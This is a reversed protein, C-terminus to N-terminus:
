LVHRKVAPTDKWPSWSTPERLKLSRMDRLCDLSDDLPREFLKLLRADWFDMPRLVSPCSAARAECGDNADCGDEGGDGELSM